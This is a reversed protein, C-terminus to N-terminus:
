SCFNCSSYRKEFLNTSNNYIYGKIYKEKPYCTENGDKILAYNEYICDDCIGYDKRCSGCRTPFCTRLKFIIYDNIYYIKKYNNEEYKSINQAKNKITTNEKISQEKLKKLFKENKEKKSIEEEDIVKKGNSNNKIIEEEGIDDMSDVKGEIKPKEEIKKDQIESNFSNIGYNFSEEIGKISNKRQNKNQHNDELSELYNEYSM